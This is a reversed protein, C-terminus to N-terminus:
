QCAGGMCTGSGVGTRACCDANSTCPDGMYVCCRVYSDGTVDCTGRTTCACQANLTCLEGISYACAMDPGHALDPAHEALDATALDVSSIAGDGHSLDPSPGITQALDTATNADTTTVNHTANSVCGALLLALLPRM